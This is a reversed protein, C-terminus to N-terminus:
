AALDLVLPAHDSPPEKTALVRREDRDVWVNKVRTAVASDGLALDFRLGEDREFADRQYPWWTYHGSKESVVRLLDHFEAGQFERLWTREEPTCHIRHRLGEPDWVDRDDPAVNFDGLVVIPPDRPLQRLWRGFSLMWQGKIKFIDSGIESGNVVYANVIRIGGIVASVVRAEEPLPNDAFGCIVNSPVGPGPKADETARTGSAFASLNSRRSPDRVLIAVGNYNPQGHLVLRYGLSAIAMSPFTADSTKTEQLCVVDPEHRQLVDVLRPLRARISNINWSVVRVSM